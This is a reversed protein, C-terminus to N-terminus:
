VALNSMMDQQTQYYGSSGLWGHEQIVNHVVQPLDDVRQTIQQLHFLQYTINAYLKQIIIHIRNM